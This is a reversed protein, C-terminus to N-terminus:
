GMKGIKIECNVLIYTSLMTSSPLVLVIVFPSYTFLVISTLAPLPYLYYGNVKGM